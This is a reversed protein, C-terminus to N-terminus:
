TTTELRRAIEARWELEYENLCIAGLYFTPPWTTDAFLRRKGADYSGFVHFLVCNSVSELQFDAPIQSAWDPVIVDLRAALDAVLEARVAPSLTDKLRHKGAHRLPPLEITDMTLDYCPGDYIDVLIGLM